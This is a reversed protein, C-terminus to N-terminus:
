ATDLLDRLKKVDNKLGSFSHCEITLPIKLVKNGLSDLVKQFNINGNGIPLHEDNEGNNDHLHVNVIHDKLEKIFKEPKGLTNAHGVDFTLKCGINEILYSLQKPYGALIYDGSKHDNEITFTVNLDTSKKNIKSLTKLANKLSKKVYKYPYDNSLRGVHSIILDANIEAAFTVAKLVTKLSAKLITPNLSALNINISPAHVSYKFNYTYLLDTIETLSKQSNLTQLLELKDLKLEVLDVKLKSAFKLFETLPKEFSSHDAIGLIM